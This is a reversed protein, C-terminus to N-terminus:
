VGKQKQMIGEILGSHRLSWGLAVLISSSYLVRGAEFQVVFMDSVLRDTYFYIFISWFLLLGLKETTTGFPKGRIARWTCMLLGSYAAVGASYAILLPAPWFMPRHPGTLIEFLTDPYGLDTQIAFYYFHSLHTLCLLVTLPRTLKGSRMSVLVAMTLIASMLGQARAFSREDGLYAYHSTM